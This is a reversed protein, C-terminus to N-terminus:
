PPRPVSSTTPSSSRSCGPATCLMLRDRPLRPVARYHGVRRAQLQDRLLQALGVGVRHEVGHEEPVVRGHEDRGRGHRRGELVELALAEGEEGGDVADVVEGLLRAEADVVLQEVHRLGVASWWSRSIKSMNPTMKSPWWSRRRIRM